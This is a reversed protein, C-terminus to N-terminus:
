DGEFGGPPVATDTPFFLTTPSPPPIPTESPYPTLTPAFTATPILPTASLFRTPQPATIASTPLLGPLTIAPPPTVSSEVTVPAPSAPTETLSLTLIPTLSISPANQAPATGWLMLGILYLPITGVIIVMLVIRLNRRRSEIPTLGAM